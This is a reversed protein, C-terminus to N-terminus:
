DEGIWYRVKLVKCWEGGEFMMICVDLFINVVFYFVEELFCNDMFLVYFVMILGDLMVIFFINVMGLVLFGYKLWFVM